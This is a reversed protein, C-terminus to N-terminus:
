EEESAGKADAAPKEEKEEKKEEEKAEKEAKAAEDEKEAPAEAESEKGSAEESTEAEEAVAESKEESAEAAETAQTDESSTEAEATTEEAEPAPASEEKVEEKIPAAKGSIAKLFAEREKASQERRAQIKAEKEAVFAEYMEDAKEQTLSGKQVGRALHKRYLIGKFKLIARATDTPTAGKMLWDFAKDNDLDITAPTTMPNYSGIREIYRGDRPSRQDAIVIHYYPKKKRGQRQLRIRVSM